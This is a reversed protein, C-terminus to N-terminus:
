IRHERLKEYYPLAQDCLASGEVSLESTSAVPRAFGDSEWVSKYWHSAWAGDDKHGGKPWRLMAEQFELGIHDCIGRLAGEPNALIDDSDVVVPIEGTQAVIQDFIEAQQKFGIDDLAPNERKANYSAIVKAPDRILFINTVHNMWERDITPVMHHTMHKQYFVSKGDPIDGLCRAAVVAADPEGAALIEARMPHELGTEALYAAYFPEDWVACDDRAGFSYMMATSLNRPGSWMAIRM